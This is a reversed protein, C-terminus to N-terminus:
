ACPEEEKETNHRWLFEDYLKWGTVRIHDSCYGSYGGEYGEWYMAGAPIECRLVAMAGYIGVAYLALCREDADAPRAYSHFGESVYLVRFYDDGDGNEAPLEGNLSYEKGIEYQFGFFESTFCVADAGQSTLVVKYCEIPKEAVKARKDYTTLCM